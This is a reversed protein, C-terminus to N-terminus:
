ADMRRVWGGLAPLVRVVVLLVVDEGRAVDVLVELFGRLDPGGCGNGDEDIWPLGNPGPLAAWAPGSVYGNM